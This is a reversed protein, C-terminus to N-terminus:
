NFCFINREMAILVYKGGVCSVSIVLTGALGTKNWSKLITSRCLLNRSLSRYFGAVKLSHKAQKTDEAPM